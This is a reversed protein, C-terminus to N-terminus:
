RRVVFTEPIGPLGQSGTNGTHGWDRFLSDKKCRMVLVRPVSEKLPSDQIFSHTGPREVSLRNRCDGGLIWPLPDQNLLSTKLDLESLSPCVQVLYSVLFKTLPTWPPKNQLVWPFLFFFAGFKEKWGMQLKLQNWVYQGVATIFDGM